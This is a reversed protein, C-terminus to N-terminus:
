SPDRYPFWNPIVSLGAAYALVDSYCQGVYDRNIARVKSAAGIASRVYSDYHRELEYFAKVFDQASNPNFYCLDLGYMAAHSKAEPIDSCLTTKSFLLGEQITAIGAESFSPCICAQCNMYLYAVQSTPLSGLLLVQEDMGYHSVLNRLAAEYQPDSGGGGTFVIYRTIGSDKLIRLGEILIKHNKRELIVSPYFYYEPPLIVAPSEVVDPTVFDIIPTFFPIQFTKRTISPFRRKFDEFPTPWAVVVAASKFLNEGVERTESVSYTSLIAHAVTVTPKPFKPQFGHSPNLVAQVKKLKLWDSPKYVIVKSFAVRLLFRIVRQLNSPIFEFSGVVEELYKRINIERVITIRRNKSFIAVCHEYQVTTVLVILSDTYNSLSDAIAVAVNETGRPNKLDWLQRFDVLFIEEMNLGISFGSNDIARLTVWM